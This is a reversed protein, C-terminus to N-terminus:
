VTLKILIQFCCLRCVQIFLGVSALANSSLSGFGFEEVLSPAYTDFGRQPSDLCDTLQAKHKILSSSMGM